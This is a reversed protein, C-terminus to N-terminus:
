STPSLQRIEVPPFVARPVQDEASIFPPSFQGTSIGGVRIGLGLNFLNIGLSRAKSRDVSAFRVKLLIQPKPSRCRACEAPERGEGGDICDPGRADFQESGQGHRASLHRREGLDGEATQGPLETTLERRVAEM